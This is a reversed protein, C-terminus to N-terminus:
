YQRKKNKTKHKSVIVPKIKHQKEDQGFSKHHMESGKSSPGGVCFLAISRDDLYLYACMVDCCDPAVGLSCNSKVEEDHKRQITNTQSVQLLNLKAGENLGLSNFRSSSSSTFKTSKGNLRVNTALTWTKGLHM